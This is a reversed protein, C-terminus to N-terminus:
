QELRGNLISRLRSIAYRYRGRATNVSVGQLKAIQRFRMAANLHLTVAERQELPLQAVAANVLLAQETCILEAEPAGVDHCRGGAAAIRREHRVTARYHDRARNLVCTTLYSRLNGAVKFGRRSQALAVFVDHIVDEAVHGDNVLGMAVTLLYDRHKEYVRELAGVHGRKLRRKLLEDEIM